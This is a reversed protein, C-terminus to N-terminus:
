ILYRETWKLAKAFALLGAISIATTICSNKIPSSTAREAIAASVIPIFTAMAGLFLDNLLEIKFARRLGLDREEYYMTRLSLATSVAGPLGASLKPSKTLYSMIFQYSMMGVFFLSLSTIKQALSDKKIEDIKIKFADVPITIRCIPCKGSSRIVQYFCKRHMPHRAGDTGSHITALGLRDVYNNLPIMCISCKDTPLYNKTSEISLVDNLANSSM